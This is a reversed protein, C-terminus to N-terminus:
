SKEESKSLKINIEVIEVEIMATALKDLKKTEM